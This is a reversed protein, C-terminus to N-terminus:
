LPLLARGLSGSEMLARSRQAAVEQSQGRGGSAERKGRGAVPMHAQEPNEVM